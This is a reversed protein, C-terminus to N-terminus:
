ALSGPATRWAIARSPRVSSRKANSRSPEVTTTIAFWPGFRCAYICSGEFPQLRKTRGSRKDLSILANPELQTDTAYVLYIDPDDCGTADCDDWCITVDFNGRQDTLGDYMLESDLDDDDLILMRIQELSM